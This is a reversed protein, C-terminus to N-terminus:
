CCRTREYIRHKTWYVYILRTNKQGTQRCGTNNNHANRLNYSFKDRPRTVTIIYSINIIDTYFSRYNYISYHGIPAFKVSTVLNMIKATRYVFVVCRWWVQKAFSFYYRFHWQLYWEYVERQKGLFFFNRFFHVVTNSCLMKTNMIKTILFFFYCMFVFRIVRFLFILYQSM